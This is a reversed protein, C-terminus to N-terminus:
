EKKFTQWSGNEYRLIVYHLEGTLTKYTYESYMGLDKRGGNKQTSHMSKDWGFHSNKPEGTLTDGAPLENVEYVPGFENEVFTKGSESLEKSVVKQSYPNYGYENQVVMGRVPEWMVAALSAVVLLLCIFLLVRYSPRHDTHLNTSISNKV